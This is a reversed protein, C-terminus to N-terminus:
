YEYLENEDMEKMEVSEKKLPFLQKYVGLYYDGDTKEYLYLTINRQMGNMPACPFEVKWGKGNSWEHHNKLITEKAELWAQNYFRVVLM